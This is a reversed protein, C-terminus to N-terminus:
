GSTIERVAPLVCDVQDPGVRKVGPALAALANLEDAPLPGVLRVLDSFRLGQRVLSAIYTHRLAAPTIDHPTELGADLAAATVMANLEHEALSGGNAARLLPEEPLAEVGRGIRAALGPGLDVTRAGQGRVALRGAGVDLDGARLSMAEAASLGCLLCALLPVQEPSAAAFLARQEDASLERAPPEAPAAQALRPTGGGPQDHALAELAPEAALAARDPPSITVWPQPIIVTSAAAAAPDRRNFFEVFWVSLFALVLSGAVAIASDRLYLPRWASEPTTANEIVQTRPKRASESAEMSVVKQRAAHRLQELSKLEDQMAQFDMFNRSFTQVAQKDEALQQQLRRTTAQASALEERAADLSVQQGKRREAELQQELNSIRAQLERGKPDMELYQPTYQRELARYEERWQSLRSEMAAVTPNDKALPSRQGTAIAQEIAQVKGAAIAERDTATTLSAGLGKQRSLARNEDREASVINAKLRFAEVARRREDVRQEVVRLEQRAEDLDSRNTSQGAQAQRERYAEILANVARAVAQRDGGFAEILIVNSGEVRSIRLMEQLAAVPDQGSGVGVGVGEASLREAVKDLLPRSNLVQMEVLVAPTIDAAAAAPAALKAGPTVQVRASALYIAPRSFVYALSAILAIAFVLSFVLVRRRM